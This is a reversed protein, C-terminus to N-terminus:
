ACGIATMDVSARPDFVFRRETDGCSECRFTRYEFGPKALADHPEVLTLRMEGGCEFCKMSIEGPASASNGSAAEETIVAL